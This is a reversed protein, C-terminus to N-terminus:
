KLKFEFPIFAWVKAPEGDLTVPEFTCLYSAKLAAEGLEPHNEVGKTVEAEIVKGKEDVLVKIHVMGQAQAKRASEPYEPRELHILRPRTVLSEGGASREKGVERRDKEGAMEDAKAEASTDADSESKAERNAGAKGGVDAGAKGGTKEATKDGTKGGTKGGTKEELKAREDKKPPPPPPDDASPEVPTDPAPVVAPIEGSPGAPPPSTDATSGIPLFSGACVLLTALVLISRYRSMANREIQHLRALRKHLLSRGGSGAAASLPAPELTANVVRALACAYGSAGIGTSLAAEDCAFEANERLRGLIPYVLPYFCFASQCLRFLLSRLPDRRRRHADEHKLVAVLERESLVTFLRRPIVIRPHFLGVVVPMVASKTVGVRDTPIGTEQLLREMRRRLRVPFQALPLPEIDRARTLDRAVSAVGWILCVQWLVTLCVFGCTVWTPVNMQGLDLSSQPDLVTTVAAAVSGSVASTAPAFLSVLSGTLERVLVAGVALPLFLKLVALSWLWGGLRAPARRLGGALLFLLMIVLSSQWLHTLVGSWLVLLTSGITSM